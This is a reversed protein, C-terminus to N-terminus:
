NSVRYAAISKAVWWQKSAARLLQTLQEDLVFGAFALAERVGPEDKGNVHLPDLYNTYTEAWSVIAGKVAHRRLNALVVHEFEHPIHELVEICMVWDFNRWMSFPKHLLLPQVAGNTLDAIGIAGDFAFAQFLGTLNLFKSYGGLSAGFDGVSDGPVLVRSTIATLLGEDSLQADFTSRFLLDTAPMEGGTSAARWANGIHGTNSYEPRSADNPGDATLNGFLEALDIVAFWARKAFDLLIQVDSLLQRVRNVSIASTGHGVAQSNRTEQGTWLLFTVKSHRNWFRYMKQFARGLASGLAAPLPVPCTAVSRTIDGELSRLAHGLALVVQSQVHRADVPKQLSEAMLESIERGCSSITASYRRPTQRLSALSCNLSEGAAPKPPRLRLTRPEASQRRAFWVGATHERLEAFWAQLWPKPSGSGEDCRLVLIGDARLMNYVERGFDMAKISGWRAVIADYSEDLRLKLTDKSLFFEEPM